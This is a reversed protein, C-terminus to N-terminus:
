FPMEMKERFRLTVHDIVLGTAGFYLKVYHNPGFIEGFDRKETVFAGETGRFSITEKFGNDYYVSVPLQALPGLESKVTIELDYFGSVASIGFVVSSGTATGWGTGPITINNAEDAEYYVIEGCVGEADELEKREALEEESIADMEYLMAPSKLIFGLIHAANRQLQGITLKGEHLATM